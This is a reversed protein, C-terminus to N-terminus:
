GATLWYLPLLCFVFCGFFLLLNVTLLAGLVGAELLLLLAFYRAARVNQNWSALCAPVFIFTSLLLLPLAVGNTKALTLPPLLLLSGAFTASTVGLAARSSFRDRGIALIVVAGALPLLVLIALLHHAFIAM